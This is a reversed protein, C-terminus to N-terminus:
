ERGRKEPGASINCDISARRFTKKLVSLGDGGSAWGIRGQKSKETASIRMQCLCRQNALPHDSRPTGPGGGPMGRFRGDAYCQSQGSSQWRETDIINKLYNCVTQRLHVHPPHTCQVLTKQKSPLQRKSECKGLLTKIDIM